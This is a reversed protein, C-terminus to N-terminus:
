KDFSTVRNKCVFPRDTFLFISCIATGNKAYQALWDDKQVGIIIHESMIIMCYALLYYFAEHKVVMFLLLLFSDAHITFLYLLSDPQNLYLETTIFALNLNSLM